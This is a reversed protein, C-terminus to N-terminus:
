TSLRDPCVEAEKGEQATHCFSESAGLGVVSRILWDVFRDVFLTYKTQTVVLFRVLDQELIVSEECPEVIERGSFPVELNHRFPV